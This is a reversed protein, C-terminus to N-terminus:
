KTVVLLLRKAFRQITKNISTEFRPGTACLAGAAIKGAGLGAKVATLLQFKSEVTSPHTPAGLLSNLQCFPPYTPPAIVPMSGLIIEGLPNFMLMLLLLIM